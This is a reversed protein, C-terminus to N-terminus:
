LRRAAGEIASKMEGAHAFREEPKKALARMVVESLAPHISPPLPEPPDYRHMKAVRGPDEDEFPPSGSLKAYMIAGLSYLDSRLDVDWPARTLEPSMFEATGIDHGAIRSYDWWGRVSSYGFDILVVCGHVILLHDPKLDRHVVGAAHVASLAECTEAALAAVGKQDYRFSSSPHGDLAELVLYDDGTGLLRVVRDSRILALAAAEASLIRRIRESGAYKPHLTKVAVRQGSLTDLALEVTSFAGEGLKALPKFRRHLLPVDQALKQM